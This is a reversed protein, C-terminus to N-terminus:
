DKIVFITKKNKNNAYEIFVNLFSIRKKENLSHLMIEFSENNINVFNMRVAYQFFRKLLLEHNSRKM